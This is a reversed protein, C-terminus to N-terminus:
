LGELNFKLVPIKKLNDDILHIPGFAVLGIKLFSVIGFASM